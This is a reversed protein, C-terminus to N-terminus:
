LNSNLLSNWYYLLLHSTAQLQHPPSTVTSHPPMTLKCSNALTYSCLHETTQLQSFSFVICIDLFLLCTLHNHLFIVIGKKKLKFVTTSLM